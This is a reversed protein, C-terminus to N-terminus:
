KKALEIIKGEKKEPKVQMIYSSVTKFLQRLNDKFDLGNYEIINDRIWEDLFSDEIVLSDLKRIIELYEYDKKNFAKNNIISIANM